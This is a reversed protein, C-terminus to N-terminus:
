RSLRVIRRDCKGDTMSARPRLTPTAWGHSSLADEAGVVVLADSLSFPDSSVADNLSLRSYLETDRPDRILKVSRVGWVWEAGTESAATLDYGLSPLFAFERTLVTPVILAWNPQDDTASM